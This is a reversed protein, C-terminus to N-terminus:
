MSVCRLKIVDGRNLVPAINLYLWYKKQGHDIFEVCKREKEVKEAKLIIDVDEKVIKGDILAKDDDPEILPSWWTIFKIRHESFFQYSWERLEELRMQEWKTCTRGENKEIDFHCTPVYPSKREGKYILWNAFNNQYALLEGKQTLCFEFRRLRLIEGVNKVKPSKGLTKSYIMVTVFKHFKIDKNTIYAKHNFTPDIIKFKTVYDAGEQSRFPESIDIIIGFLLTKHRM